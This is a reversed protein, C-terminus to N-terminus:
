PKYHSQSKCMSQLLVAHKCLLEALALAGISACCGLRHRPQGRRLLGWLLVVACADGAEHGRRAANHLYACLTYTLEGSAM